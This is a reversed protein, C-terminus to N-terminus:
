LDTIQKDYNELTIDFEPDDLRIRIIKGILHEPDKIRARLSHVAPLQRLRQLVYDASAQLSDLSRSHSSYIEKLMSWELGTRGFEDDTFRNRLLFTAQDIHHKTQPM